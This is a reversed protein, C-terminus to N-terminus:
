RRAPPPDPDDLEDAARREAHIGTAGPRETDHVPQERHWARTDALVGGPPPGPPTPRRRFCRRFLRSLLGM